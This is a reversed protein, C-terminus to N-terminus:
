KRLELKSFAIPIDDSTYIGAVGDKYRVSDRLKKVSEGNIFFELSSGDARIELHNEAAGQKIADSKRWTVLVREKKNRHQVIRYTGNDTRILLAYGKTLVSDPESHVVLGVGSGAEEGTINRLTLSTSGDWTEIKRSLVVYYYEDVSTLVLDGSRVEARIFDNDDIEWKSLVEEEELSRDPDGLRNDERGNTKEEPTPDSTTATDTPVFAIFGILGGGCVVMLVFVIGVVLLWTKSSKPKQPIDYRPETRIEEQPPTTQITKQEVSERAEPVMITPPPGGSAPAHDLVSGDELCFNLSDDEYTTNCKPCIKM